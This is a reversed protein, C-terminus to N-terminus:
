GNPAKSRSRERRGGTLTCGSASFVGANVACATAARRQPCARWASFDACVVTGSLVAQADGTRVGSDSSIEVTCSTDAHAQGRGWELCLDGKGRCADPNLPAAGLSLPGLAASNYVGPGHYDRLTLLFTPCRGQDDSRLTLTRATPDVECRTITPRLTGAGAGKHAPGCDYSIHATNSGAAPTDDLVSRRTSASTPPPAPPPRPACAALGLLGSILVIRRQEVPALTACSEAVGM